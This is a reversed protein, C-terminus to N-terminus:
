GEPFIRRVAELPLLVFMRGSSRTRGAIKGASKGTGYYIDARQLGKIASGVDQAIMLRRMPDRGRKDIWVPAGLPTYIPDVAISREPTISVQMAGIPGDNKNLSKIERFFVFGPNHALLENGAAPNKRVWNKIKQASVQHLNMTGRRVLEKGISKYKHGNFGAYGVRIGTGNPFKIRGSGQIQLFFAEVPDDLYAIELGRGDLIGTQIEARTKWVEGQKIEPPMRYIPYQYKGGRMRSGAIEPEYYGTFKASTEEGVLVPHFLTEFFQKADPNSKAIHCIPKWVDADFFHATRAKSCTKQFARLAAAHDDTEWGKLASFPVKRLSAGNAPTEAHVNAPAIILALGLILRAVIM